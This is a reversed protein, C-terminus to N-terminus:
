SQVSRSSDQCFLRPWPIKAIFIKAFAPGLPRLYKAFTGPAINLLAKLTIMLGTRLDSPIADENAREQKKVKAVNMNNKKTQTMMIMQKHDDDHQQQRQQQQGEEEEDERGEGHRHVTSASILSEVGGGRGPYSGLAILRERKNLMDPIEPRGTKDWKRYRRKQKEAQDQQEKQRIRKQM